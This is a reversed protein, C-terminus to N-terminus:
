CKYPAVYFDAYSFTNKAIYENIAKHTPGNLAWSPSTFITLLLIMMVIFMKFCEKDPYENIVEM